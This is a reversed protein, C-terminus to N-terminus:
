GEDGRILSSDSKASLVEFEVNEATVRVDPLCLATIKYCTVTTICHRVPRRFVQPGNSISRGADDQCPVSYRTYMAISINSM